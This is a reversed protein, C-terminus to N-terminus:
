AHADDFLDLLADIDDVEDGLVDGQLAGPTVVHRGAREM